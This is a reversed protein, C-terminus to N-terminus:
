KNTLVWALADAFGKAYDTLNRLDDLRLYEYHNSKERIEEETRMRRGGIAWIQSTMEIMGSAVM